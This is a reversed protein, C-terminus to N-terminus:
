VIGEEFYVQLVATTATDTHFKNAFTAVAAAGVSFVRDTGAVSSVDLVGGVSYSHRDATTGTDEYANTEFGVLTTGEIYPRFVARASASQRVGEVFGIIKATKAWSPVRVSLVPINPFRQFTPYIATLNVAAGATAMGIEIKNRPRALARLDTIMTQLVTTEGAPLAIRAIALAPFNRANFTSELMVVPRVYEFDARLEPALTTPMYPHGSNNFEVDGVVVAVIFTRASASANPMDSDLVSHPTPNTVTYMQNPKSGQYRNLVLGAGPSIIIGRGPSELATVKFDGGEVIGEQGSTAAFAETRALASNVTAGDIAWAAKNFTM